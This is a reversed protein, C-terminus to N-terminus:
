RASSTRPRRCSSRTSPSSRGPRSRRRSRTPRTTSATSTTSSSPWRRPRRDAVPDVTTRCPAFALLVATPERPARGAPRAIRRPHAQALEEERRRRSSGASASIADCRRSAGPRSRGGARCRPDVRQQREAEPDVLADLLDDALLLVPDAALLHLHRDDMRRLDPLFAAAVVLDARLQEPELVAVLAVHDERHGVLLDDRDQEAVDDLAVALQRHHDVVELRLEAVLGPRAAAQDADALEDHLVGVAAIAVLGAEVLAVLGLVLGVLPRELAEPEVRDRDAGVDPDHAAGPAWSNMTRLSNPSSM